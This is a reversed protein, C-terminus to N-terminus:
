LRKSLLLALRAVALPYSDAWVEDSTSEDEELRAFFRTERTTTKGTVVTRGFLKEMQARLERASKPDTSYAPTM